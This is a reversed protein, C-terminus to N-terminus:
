LFLSLIQYNMLQSFQYAPTKEAVQWVFGFSLYKFAAKWLPPDVYERRQSSPLDFSVNLLNSDLEM